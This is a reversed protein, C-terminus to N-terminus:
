ALCSVEDYTPCESYAQKVVQAAQELRDALRGDRSLFCLFRNTSFFSSRVSFSLCQERQKVVIISWILCPCSASVCTCLDDHLGQICDLCLFVWKDKAGEKHLLVAHAIAVLVSQEALGIRLKAQVVLLLQM